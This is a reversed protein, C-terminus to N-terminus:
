WVDKDAVCYNPRDCNIRRGTGPFIPGDDLAEVNLYLNQSDSSEFIELSVRDNEM